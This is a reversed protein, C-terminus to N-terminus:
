PFVKFGGPVRKQFVQTPDYTRSVNQLFVQNAAGFSPIPQQSVDAHNVDIWRNYTGLGKASSIIDDLLQLGARRVTADDDNTWTFSSDCLILADGRPDTPLGLM